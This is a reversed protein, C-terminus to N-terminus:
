NWPLNGTKMRFILKVNLYYQKNNISLSDEGSFHTNFRWKIQVLLPSIPCCIYHKKIIQHQNQESFEDLIANISPSSTGAYNLIISFKCSYYHLKKKRFLRFNSFLLYWLSAPVITCLHKTPNISFLKSFSKTCNIVLNIAYLRKM